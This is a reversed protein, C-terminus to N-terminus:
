NKSLRMHNAGITDLGDAETVFSCSTGTTRYAGYIYWTGSSTTAWYPVATAGVVPQDTSIANPPEFGEAWYVDNAQAKIKTVTCLCMFLSLFVITFFKKM